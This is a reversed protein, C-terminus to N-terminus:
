ILAMATTAQKPPSVPVWHLGRWRHVRLGSLADPCATNKM